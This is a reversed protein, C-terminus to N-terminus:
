RRSCRAWWLVMGGAGFLALGLARGSWPGAVVDGRFGELAFRLVGYMMFYAGTVTGAPARDLLRLLLGAVVAEGAAEYLQTPHLPAGLWRRPVMAAPDTFTIAWPVDAPRGHCCGALLCGLRGFVHWFPIMWFAHDTLRLLDLGRSRAFWLMAALAGAFGGFFSYGRGFAFSGGYQVWYLLKASAMASLLTVNFLVFFDDADKLGLKARRRWLWWGALLGGLAVMLGYGHVKLPGLELLVPRM